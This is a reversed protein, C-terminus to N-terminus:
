PHAPGSPERTRLGPKKTGASGPQKWHAALCGAYGCLGLDTILQCRVAAPVLLDHWGLKPIRGARAEIGMATVVSCRQSLRALAM